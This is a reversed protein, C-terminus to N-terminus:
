SVSAPWPEWPPGFQLRELPDGVPLARRCGDAHSTHDNPDCGCDPCCVHGQEYGMRDEDDYWGAVAERARQEDWGGAILTRVSLEDLRERESQPDPAECDHVHGCTHLHRTM